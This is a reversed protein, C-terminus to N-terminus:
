YTGFAPPGELRLVPPDVDLGREICVGYGDDRCGDPVMNRSLRPVGRHHSRHGRGTPDMASRPTSRTAAGVTTSGSSSNPGRWRSCAGPRRIHASLAVPGHQIPPVSRLDYQMTVDSGLVSMMTAIGTGVMATIAIALITEFPSARGSPPRRRPDHRPSRIFCCWDPSSGVPIDHSEVTVTYGTVRVQLPEISHAEPRILVRRGIM